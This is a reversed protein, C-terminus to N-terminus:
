SGPSTSWPPGCPCPASEWRAVDGTRYRVLPMVRRTVTTLVIEGYGDGDPEVIEPYFDFENVHYGSQQTCEFALITAAETSAYTMCLPAGWFAELEARTWFTAREATPNFNVPDFLVAQDHNGLLVVRCREMILDLCERPNPGYGVVDGLCYVEQVQQRAIDELVAQLAELTSHVDSIVAKM